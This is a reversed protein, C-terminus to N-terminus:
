TICVAFNGYFVACLQRLYLIVIHKLHGLFKHELLSIGMVKTQQMSRSAYSRSNDYYLYSLQQKTMERQYQDVLSFKSMREEYHETSAVYYHVIFVSLICLFLM